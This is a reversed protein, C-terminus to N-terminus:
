SLRPPYEYLLVAYVIRQFEEATICWCNKILNSIRADVGADNNEICLLSRKPWPDSFHLKNESILCGNIVHAVKSGDYILITALRIQPACGRLTLKKLSTEYWYQYSSWLEVPTLKQVSNIKDLPPFPQNSNLLCNIPSRLGLQDLIYLEDFALGREELKGGSELFAKYAPKLSYIDFNALEPLKTPFKNQYIWKTAIYHLFSQPTKIFEEYTGWKITTDKGGFYLVQFSDLKSMIRKNEELNL